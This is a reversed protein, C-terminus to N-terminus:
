PDKALADRVNLLLTRATYPKMIFHHVGEKAANAVMSGAGLGSAAIIKVQPNMRKLIRILTAGDMVPMMMDTLVLSIDQLNTAYVATGESGDGALLVRYGFSELTQRTIQRVADEDDVLLILEGKGRPLEEPVTDATSESTEKYAPLYVHFRTGTGPESYVRVFGGHSKVIALTTSLGLGTGKGLEKTTFFPEFIREVVDQPMGEGTDEVLIRVYDGPKSEINMAAYNEDLHVNKAALKLTGGHPMADRANVCLNILVQHLQTPDGRVISIDPPIHCQVQINKLFTENCIKEVERLLPEVQLDLQLGEVGRAFSLVQRVMNSGRQTSQEITNLVKLRSPDTENLKLLEISMLIPTLANNLDHAIGGALTGISEMRQARLFQQQLTRRETIDTAIGALRLLRGASDRIQFGRDHIWRISGDPQHIRYECSVKPADTHLTAFLTSVREQDEPVISELWQNPNSCLSEPSRGWIQQYAASIFHVSQSDASTIWFVDTMNDVLQRFKDESDRRAEEARQSETIDHATGVMRLPQGSAEDTFLQATEHVVRIEGSPRILRHVVSYPRREQIASRITERIIQHDEPHALQFFLDNSVEVGGPEYGAIRYMEDSWRLPNADIDEAQALDLEWSGFHAISQALAMNSESVRLKKETQLRQQEKRLTQIAFSLDQAVTVMLRIEDEEFYGAEDAFIVLAGMTSDGMKLPFSATALYGHRLAVERWPAMRPDTAFDNCVDYTGTRISTGITGRGHPEDKSTIILDTLYDGTEGHSAVTHLEGSTPEVEIVMAMKLQGDEVLIRCAEQHLTQLDGTRVIAEAVKSLVGYLRNLRQLRFEALKRPTIDKFVSIFYKETATADDSLTVVLNIWILSGDKRRYRKETSFVRIEGAVLAQRASESDALEEPLTLQHFKMELLEDEAYGTINCLTENVRLFRGDMAVHAIGIASQEFTARFREESVKLKEEALRRETVDIHMVVAGKFSRSNLPTVLLQFWRKETLSHCPYELSYEMSEGNLVRRIGEAPQLEVPPLEGCSGATIKLYSQGIGFNPDQLSNAKAFRRWAENVALIVGASNLLAIHAPISDLVAEQWEMQLPM